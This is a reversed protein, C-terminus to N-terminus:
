SSVLANNVYGSFAKLFNSLGSTSRRKEDLLTHIYLLHQRTLVPVLADQVTTTQGHVVLPVEPDAGKEILLRIVPYFEKLDEESQSLHPRDFTSLAKNLVDKNAMHCHLLFLSWVTLNDYIYVKQNPDAGKQLLLEVMRLDAKAVHNPLELPTVINPRLAYDLLPRGRKGRINESDLHEETYLLLGAQIASALFTKQQHENFEGKPIDRLNSWHPGQFGHIGVFQATVHDLEDLLRFEELLRSKDIITKHTYQTEIERAHYMFEDVFSFLSNLLRNVNNHFPLGKILALMGRCLSIETDFDPLRWEGLTELANDTNRFFERVTRHLFDVRYGLYMAESTSPSPCLPDYHERTIELLDKCRANVRKKMSKYIIMLKDPDLPEMQAELAFSPNRSEEELFKYALVPLPQLAAVAIKFYRISEQRYPEEITKIMHRFYDELGDPIRDLRRRLELVNDGNRLGKILSEVVLYVWLFVGQARRTIDEAISTCLRDTSELEKFNDNEALKRQVYKKIDDRTLDELKLKQESKGFADTFVNWPRSSVCIKISPSSVMGQITYILDEHEGSYEDLGDIFFCFKESPLTIQSLKEFANRLNQHSWDCDVNEFKGWIMEILDPCEKLVQYLLTRLLGEESKQLLSGANWFFHSGNFLKCRGAWSQLSSKTRDHSTLFKMLTSKGSGAKGEIWYIGKGSYLWESFNSHSRQFIWEFTEAHAKRVADHRVRSRDFQLSRLIDQQKKVIQAEKELAILAEGIGAFGGTNNNSEVEVLLGSRINDLKQTTNAELFMNQEKLTELIRLITSQENRLPM